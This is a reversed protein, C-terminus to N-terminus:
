CILKFMNRILDSCNELVFLILSISIGYFYARFVYFLQVLNLGEFEKHLIIQGLNVLGKFKRFNFQNLWFKILGSNIM